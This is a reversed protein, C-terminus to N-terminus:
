SSTDINAASIMFILYQPLISLDLSLESELSKSILFMSYATGGVKM